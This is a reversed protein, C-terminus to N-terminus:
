NEVMKRKDKFLAYFISCLNLVNFVTGFISGVLVAYILGLIEAFIFWQRIRLTSKLVITGVTFIMSSSYAFLIIWASELYFWEFVFFGINALIFALLIFTGRYKIAIINRVSALACGYGAALAGLLFFHTSIACLALASIFRYRNINQQKYGWFNLVVAVAGFAEAVLNESAFM